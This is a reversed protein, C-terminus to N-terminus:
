HESKELVGPNHPPVRGYSSETRRKACPVSLRHITLEDEHGFRAAVAWLAFLFWLTSGFQPTEILSEVIGQVMVGAVSGLLAAGIVRALDSSGQRWSRRALVIVTIIFAMFCLTGVLGTEALFKFYLSHADWMDDPGTATYTNFHSRFNGYGIGMVPENLFMGFAAAYIVGRVLTVEDTGSFRDATSVGKTESLAQLSVYSISLGTIVALLIVALSKLRTKEMKLVTAFGIWVIVFSSIFGGRSLTLVLVVISAFATSGAAWRLKSGLKRSAQVALALPLIMNLHAALSNVGLFISTPRGQWPPAVNMQNYYLWEFWSTLSNSSVQHLALVCVVITSVFLAVVCNRFQRETTIWGTVAYYFLIYSALRFLSRASGGELPHVVAASILAVAFFALALKELWNKWLWPRLPEHHVMRATFVGAFVLLRSVTALDHLPFGEIETIPALPLAFVVLYLLPDFRFYALVLVLAAGAMIGIVASNAVLLVLACAMVAILLSLLGPRIQQIDDGDGPFHGVTGSSM